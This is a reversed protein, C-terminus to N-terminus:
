VLKTSGLPVKDIWCLVWFYSSVGNVSGSKGKVDIHYREKLENRSDM